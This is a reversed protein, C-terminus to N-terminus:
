RGLRKLFYNVINASADTVHLRGLDELRKDRLPDERNIIVKDFMEDLEEVNKIKYYHAAAGENVAGRWTSDPSVLHLVPHKTPLYEALFSWCDTILASSDLFMQFYDGADYVLGLKEWQAYYDDVEAETMLGYKALAKKLGPHPKFIWQVKGATNRAVQLIKKGSWEFTGIGGKAVSWHPAYIVTPVTNERPPPPTQLFFELKPHGTIVANDLGTNEV